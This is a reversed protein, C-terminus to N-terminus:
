DLNDAIIGTSFFFYRTATTRDLGTTLNVLPLWTKRTKLTNNHNSGLFYQGFVRNVLYFGIFQFM